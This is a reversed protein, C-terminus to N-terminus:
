LDFFWSKFVENPNQNEVHGDCYLYTHGNAHFFTGDNKLPIGGAAVYGAAFSNATQFQSNYKNTIMKGWYESIAVTQESSTVDTVKRSTRGRMLGRRDNYNEAILGNVRYSRAHARTDEESPCRLSPTSIVGSSADNWVEYKYWDTPGGNNGVGMYPALLCDWSWQWRQGSTPYYDINESTYLTMALGQQKLNNTCSIQRARERAQTLAPLLLSALIAIISIVVLLEILTFHIPKQHANM